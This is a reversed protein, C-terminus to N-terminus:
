PPPQRVPTGRSVNTLTSRWARSNHIKVLVEAPELLDRTLYMRGSDREIQVPSDAESLMQFWRQQFRQDPVTFLLDGLAAQQPVSVSLAVDESGGDRVCLRLTAQRVGLLSRVLRVQGTQPAVHLLHSEPSAYFTVRGNREADGDKAGFRALETGLPTLAHVEVTRNGGIFRPINDNRDSVEVQVAAAGRPLQVTLEYMAIFERDLAKASVLGLRHDRHHVLRFDSAYDGTLTANLHSGGPLLVGSVPTGVPSNEAIHGFYRASVPLLLLLLHLLVPGNLTM